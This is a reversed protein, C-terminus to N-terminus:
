AEKRLVSNITSIVRDPTVPKAIYNYAGLRVADMASTVDPEGTVMIVPVDEDIERVRKLLSMGGVRPLIIDAVVIDCAHNSLFSDAEFFGAATSVAYGEEELFAQFTERIGLEDDVILVHTM